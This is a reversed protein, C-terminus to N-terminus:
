VATHMEDLGFLSASVSFYARSPSCYEDSVWSRTTEGAKSVAKDAPDLVNGYSKDHPKLDLSHPEVCRMRNPLHDVSRRCPFTQLPGSVAM